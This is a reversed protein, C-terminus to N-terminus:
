HTVTITITKTSHLGTNDTVTLSLQFKGTRTFKHSLSSKSGVVTSGIKWVWKVIKGGTNKDSTKASWTHTTNVRVSTSGGISVTPAYGLTYKKSAAVSSRGFNDVVSVNVTYTGKTTFTHTASASSTVTGPTGDGWSWHYSVASSGPIPDSFSAANFTTAANLKIFSPGALSIKPIMATFTSVGNPTGVGSPGDYGTTANCQTNAAITTESGSYDYGCDLLGAWGNQYFSNGNLLNNPNGTPPTTESELVSSCNAASDGDCFANGGVTVDYLSSPTWQFHDYLSQAPYKVGGAGGALAWMGAVLPSALSTGGITQWQGAVNVDFGSYPDADAAVDGALRNSGCGTDSYGAVAAQWSPAPYIFSCGGGSAGQDGNWGIFAMLGVDDDPGNENWVEEAARSGDANLTLKTGGVAVVTPYAAPTNPANDSAGNPADNAFDWDYWGHDGTSATIVIGPHDYAAAQSAPASPDEPGGYSNSIETAHLRAASNVATALDANSASDAEVLLIKCHNCIGRVAQLDLAIEGAWGSNNAPLPSSNGDQNV